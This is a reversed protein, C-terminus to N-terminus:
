LKHIKRAVYVQASHANRVEVKPTAVRTLFNVAVPGACERLKLISKDASDHERCKRNDRTAYFFLHCRCAVHGAVPKYIPETAAQLILHVVVEEGLYRAVIEFLHMVHHPRETAVVTNSVMFSGYKGAGLLYQLM